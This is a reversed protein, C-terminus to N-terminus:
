SLFISLYLCKPFLLLMPISLALYLCYRYKTSTNTTTNTSTDYLIPTSVGSGDNHGSNSDQGNSPVKQGEALCKIWMAARLGPTYIPVWYSAFTIQRKIQCTLTESQFPAHGSHEGLLQSPAIQTCSQYQIWHGPYYYVTFCKSYYKM